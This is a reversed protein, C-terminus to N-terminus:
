QARANPDPGPVSAHDLKPNAGASVTAPGGDAVVDRGPPAALRAKSSAPPAAAACGAGDFARDCALVRSGAGLSAAADVGIVPREARPPAFDTPRAASVGTPAGAGILQSLDQRLAQVTADMPAAAAAASRVAQAEAKVRASVVSLDPAGPPRARLFADVEEPLRGALELAAEVPLKEAHLTLLRRQLQLRSEDPPAAPAGARPAAVALAAQAALFAAALARRLPRM